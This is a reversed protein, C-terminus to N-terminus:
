KKPSIPFNPDNKPLTLKEVLCLFSLNSQVSFRVHMPVIRKKQRKKLCKVKSKQCANNGIAGLTDREGKKRVNKM